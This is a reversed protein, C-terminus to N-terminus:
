TQRIRALVLPMLAFLFLTILYATGSVPDRSAVYQAASQGQLLLAFSLEATFVLTLALFGVSLRVFGTSALAFLRSIYGAALVIAVLMLPMEILEAARVGLRPVLFPVRVMGLLFGAGFVLVFYLAGAKLIQM